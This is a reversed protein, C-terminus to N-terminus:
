DGGSHHIATMTAVLPMRLQFTTGAPSSCLVAITGGHAEIIQRTVYLGLGLGPIEKAGNARQFRDFVREHDQSPIGGGGDRVSVSVDGGLREVVMGIPQGAGYKIANTILNSFVQEMRLRDWDGAVTLDGELTVACDSSAASARFVEITERAVEVLDIHSRAIALQGSEILSADFLVGVLQVMRQSHLAIKRLRDALQARSFAEDLIDQEMLDIHLCLGHLPTRLEHSAVSLFEERVRSAERAIGYLRANDIAMATRLALEHALQVTESDQPDAWGFRAAGFVRGAVALPVTVSCAGADRSRDITRGTRHSEALDLDPPDPPAPADAAPLHLTCSVCFAPVAVQQVSALTAEEDVSASLQKGVDALWQARRQAVEAAVRGAHEEALQRTRELHDQRDRAQRLARDLSAGDIEGKRLFDQAGDQLARQGLSADATGTLVVLAVSPAAAPIRIMGQLGSADPLTLDLLVVDVAGARIRELAAQIRDVRELVVSRNARGLSEHILDADGDNDEVLLVHVPEM